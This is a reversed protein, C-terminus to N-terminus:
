RGKGWNPSREYVREGWAVGQDVAADIMAEPVGLEEAAGMAATCRELRAARLEKLGTETSEGRESKGAARIYGATVRAFKRYAM